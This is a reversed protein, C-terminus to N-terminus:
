KLRYIVDPGFQAAPECYQSIFSEFAQRQKVPWGYLGYRNDEEYQKRNIVVHTIGLARFKKQVQEVDEINNTLVEAIPPDCVSSFYFPRDLYYPGHLGVLLVKGVEANANLWEYSPQSEAERHLFDKSSELGLFYAVPATLYYNTAITITLNALVVLCLFFVLPRRLTKYSWVRGELEVAAVCFFVALMTLLSRTETQIVLWVLLSSVIFTKLFTIGKNVSRFFLLPIFVLPLIGPHIDIMAPKLTMRFPFLFYHTWNWHPMEWRRLAKDFYQAAADSWYPSHFINNLFPYFPNGTFIWNKVFVLLSIAGVPLLFWFLHQWKWRWRMIGVLFLLLLAFFIMVFTYKMWSALGALVGALLLLRPGRGTEDALHYDLLCGIGLLLFFVFFADNWAWGMVLVFVPMSLFFAPGLLRSSGPNAKAIIRGMAFLLFIGTWFHLAKCVIDGALPKVLLYIYEAMCPYNSELLSPIYAIKGVSLIIRPILIHYELEDTSVLPTVLPPIAQLIFIAMVFLAFINLPNRITEKFDFSVPLWKRLLTHIFLALGAITWLAYLMINVIGLVGLVFTFLGTLGLGLAFSVLIEDTKSRYQRPYLLRMLPAGMGCFSVVFALAFGIPKLHFIAWYLPKNWLFYAVLVAAFMLLWLNLLPAKKSDNNSLTVGNKNSQKDPM